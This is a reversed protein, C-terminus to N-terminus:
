LEDFAALVKEKVMNAFTSKNTIEEVMPSTPSYDYKNICGAIVEKGNIMKKKVTISFECRHDKKDSATVFEQALKAKNKSFSPASAVPISNM